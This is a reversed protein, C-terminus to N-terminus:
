PIQPLGNRQKEGSLKPPSKPQPDSSREESGGVETLFSMPFWFWSIIYVMLMFVGVNAFKHCTSCSEDM